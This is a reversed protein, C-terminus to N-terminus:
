KSSRIRRRRGYLAAAPLLLVGFGGLAANAQATSSPATSVSGMKPGRPGTWTFIDIGRQIDSAMFWYTVTGNRHYQTKFHQVAWTNAGEPTFSAVEEFTWRGNKNIHYDVIKTGQTYYATIFRQERNLPQMVHIDCFTPGPVLADSIYVARSGDPTKAYHIDAPNSINFVHAGGNGVPNDLGFSCSSGPPVVGGGREDTVFMYKGTADPDAEHSVSVGQDAPVTNNSNCNTTADHEPHTHPTAPDCDRGPHQFTGLFKWGTASPTKTEFTRDNADNPDDACDTVKAGTKAGEVPQANEVTCALPKGRVNGNADTLNSVDFILTANLAACYLRYGRSTIDHCAASGDKWNFSEYFADFAQSWRSNNRAATDPATPNDPHAPDAAFPIRYVKPRCRDRKVGIRLHPDLMCSRVDVVDIWPHNSFDSTNNYLIWPRRDDVTVTHSFGTMRLLHLERPKSKPIQIRSIDILELGGGTEDHCRGTADTTDILLRPNTRGTVAADHQLGTTGGPNNTECHASGHDAWWQPALTGGTLLRLIRQGVHEAAAQGLTGASAYTDTRVKGSKLRVMRKFFRLDTGPNQKFNTIFTWEGQGRPTGAPPAGPIPTSLPTRPNTHDAAAPAALPVLVLVTLAALLPFKRM